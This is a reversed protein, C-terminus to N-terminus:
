EVTLSIVMRPHIACRVEFTGAADSPVELTYADGPRMLGSDTSWDAVIVNHATRDENTFDITDGAAVSLEGVAFNLAAQSVAHSQAAYAVALGGVIGIGTYGFLSLALRM